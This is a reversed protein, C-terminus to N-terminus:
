RMTNVRQATLVRFDLCHPAVIPTSTILLRYNTLSGCESLRTEDGVGADRSSRRTKFKAPDANLQEREASVHCAEGTRQEACASFTRSARFEFTIFTPGPASKQICCNRPKKHPNKSRKGALLYLAIRPSVPTNVREMFSSFVFRRPTDALLPFFPSFIISFLNFCCPNRKKLM